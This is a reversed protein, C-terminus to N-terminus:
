VHLSQRRSEREIDIVIEGALRRAGHHFALVAAGAEAERTESRDPLKLHSLDILQV